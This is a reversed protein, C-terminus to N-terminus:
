DLTKTATATQTIRIGRKALERFFPEPPVHKEPALVGKEKIERSGVMQTVIACTYGTTRAMASVGTERDYLDVLDFVLRTEEGEREGLFEVRLIVLDGEGKKYQLQPALHKIMFQRPTVKIGDAIRIPEDSLMRMKLLKSWLECHGPWRVTWRTLEKVHKLGLTEVYVTADGNLFCEAEGVPEPFRMRKVHDEFINGVEVAHGERLIRAERTYTGIADEWSWSIKYKLPEEAYEKQPIGGCYSHIEYVKDLISTGYRYLVLDIGPDLGCGPLIAVEAQKAADDLKPIEGPYSVDVLDVKAEIAAKAVPFNFRAPLLCAVVDFDDKMLEVLQRHSTADLQRPKIKSTKLDVALNRIRGVDLDAAVVESVQSNKIIDRIAASGQMGAGLVLIRLCM